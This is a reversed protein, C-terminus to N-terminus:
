ESWPVFAPTTTTGQSPGIGQQSFDPTHTTGVESLDPTQTEGHKPIFVPVQPWGDPRQPLSSGAQSMSIGGLQGSDPIQTDGQGSPETQTAGQVLGPKGGELAM